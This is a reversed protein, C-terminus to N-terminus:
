KPGTTGVSDRLAAELQAATANQGWYQSITGDPGVLIINVSHIIQENDDFYALGFLDALKRLNAPSTFAFEWQSFHTPDNDM